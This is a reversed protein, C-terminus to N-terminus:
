HNYKISLDELIKNKINLATAPALLIGNRYHGTALLINSHHPIKEIIPAIGGDPRPRKGTWIKTINGNKFGPCISFLERKIQELFKSQALMEGNSRPFEITSGVWYRQPNVPIINIGKGAIVPIFNTNELPANLDIQMGQGIVPKIKVITQLKNVLENSGLGASIVIYDAKLIRKSTKTYCTLDHSFKQDFSPSIKQIKTNFLCHVGNLSAGLVLTRTMQIPNVQFDQPSYIAGTIREDKIQPCKQFLTSKEWVELFYSSSNRIEILDGWKELYNDVYHLLLIGNSNVQIPIQTLKELEPILTKYRKLSTKCLDWGKGRTKYNAVGRLVGLAGKTSSSAPFKEDVLIIEIGNLLSLEYAITAGIIGAGIIVIRPM